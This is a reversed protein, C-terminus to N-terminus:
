DTRQTKISILSNVLFCPACLHISSIRAIYDGCNVHAIRGKMVQILNKIKNLLKLFHFTIITLGFLGYNVSEFPLNIKTASFKVFIAEPIYEVFSYIESQM